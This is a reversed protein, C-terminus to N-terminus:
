KNKLWTVIEQAARQAQPLVGFQDIFAHKLQDFVVYQDGFDRQDLQAWLAQAQVVLADVEASILLTSPLVDVNALPNFQANHLVDETQLLHQQLQLLQQMSTIMGQMIDPQTTALRFTNAEVSYKEPHLTLQPYLLVAATVVNSLLTALQAALYGGSSDGGLVIQQYQNTGAITTIEHQLYTVIDSLKTEPLLPYDINVVLWTPGLEQAIYKTFNATVSRKGGILAGGHLYFLINDSEIISNVHYSTMALQGSTREVEDILQSTLDQNISGMTLRIYQALKALDGTAYAIQMGQQEAIPLPQRPPILDYWSDITGNDDPTAIHVSGDIVTRTELAHLRDFYATLTPSYETM